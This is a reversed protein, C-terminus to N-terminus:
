PRAVKWQYPQWGKGRDCWHWRASKILFEGFPVPDHLYVISPVRALLQHCHESLEQERATIPGRRAVASGVSQLWVAPSRALLWRPEALSVQRAGHTQFCVQSSGQIYGERSAEIIIIFLIQM